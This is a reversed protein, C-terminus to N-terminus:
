KSLEEDVTIDFKGNTNQTFSPIKGYTRAVASLAFADEQKEVSFNSKTTVFRTAKEMFNPNNAITRNSIRLGAEGKTENHGKQKGNAINQEAREKIQRHIGDNKIQLITDYVAPQSILAELYDTQGALSLNQAAMLKNIFKKGSSVTDLTRSNNITDAVLQMNKDESEVRLQYAENTEALRYYSILKEVFAKAQAKSEASIEKPKQPQTYQSNSPKLQEKFPINELGWSFEVATQNGKESDLKFDVLKKGKTSMLYKM